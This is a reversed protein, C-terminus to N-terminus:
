KVGEKEIYEEKSQDMDKGHFSQRLKERDYLANNTLQTQNAWNKAFSDKQFNFQDQALGLQQFGLYGQGLAGLGQVMPLFSGQSQMGNADIGGFLSQNSLFGGQGRANNWGQGLGQMSQKGYNMMNEWPNVTNTSNITPLSQFYAAQDQQPLQNFQM